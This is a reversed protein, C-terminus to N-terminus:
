WASGGKITLVIVGSTAVTAAVKREYKRTSEQLFLDRWESILVQASLRRKNAFTM